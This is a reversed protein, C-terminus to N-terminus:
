TCPSRDVQSGVSRRLQPVATLAGVGPVVGLLRM